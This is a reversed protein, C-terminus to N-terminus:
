AHLRAWPPVPVSLLDAGGPAMVLAVLAAALRAPSLVFDVCGTTIAASPMGPARATSPDQALVRGGHRKVARVGDSGDRLMGSLVVAIVARPAAASAASTMLADGGLAGDALLVRGCGPDITATFGGPVVLVGPQSADMGPQATRAPLGTRKGLLWALRGPEASRLGHLAVLLPVPFAAPLGSVLASLVSLSGHSGVIVVHEFAPHGNGGSAPV